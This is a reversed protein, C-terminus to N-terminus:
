SLRVEVLRRMLVIRIGLESPVILHVPFSRKIILYYYCTLSGTPTLRFPNDFSPRLHSLYLFTCHVVQVSLRNHCLCWITFPLCVPQDALVEKDIMWRESYELERRRHPGTSRPFPSSNAAGTTDGMDIDEDVSDEVHDLEDEDDFSDDESEDEGGIWGSGGLELREWRVRAERGSTETWRPKRRRTMPLGLEWGAVLGDRGGTYLIGEPTGNSALRTTTDLAIATVGLCHRPHDIDNSDVRSASSGSSTKVSGPQPHPILLPATRGLRPETLSPLSLLPVGPPPAPLVYSIRRSM